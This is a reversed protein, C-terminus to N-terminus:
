GGAALLEEASQAGSTIEASLRADEWNSRAPIRNKNDSM